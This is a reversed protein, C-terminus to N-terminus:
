GQDGFPRGDEPTYIDEETDKLFDFAPNSAAARLWEREEADDEEPILVIVRVRGAASVPLPEDVHLRRQDDIMGGLEIARLAGDM